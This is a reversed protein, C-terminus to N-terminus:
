SMGLKPILQQFDSDQIGTAQDRVIGYVGARQDLYSGTASVVLLNDHVAQVTYDIFGDGVALAQLLGSLYTTAAAKYRKPFKSLLRLYADNQYDSLTVPDAM